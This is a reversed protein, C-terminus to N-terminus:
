PRANSRRAFVMLAAGVSGILLMGLGIYTGLVIWRPAHGPDLGQREAIAYQLGSLVTMLLALLLGVSAVVLLRRVPSGLIV